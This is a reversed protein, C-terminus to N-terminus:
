TVGANHNENALQGRPLLECKTAAACAHPKDGAALGDV